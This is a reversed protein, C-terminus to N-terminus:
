LYIKTEVQQSKFLNDISKSNIQFVNTVAVRLWGLLGRERREEYCGALSCEGAEKLALYSWTVLNHGTLNLGFLQTNYFLKKLLFVHGKQREWRSRGAAQSVSMILSIGIPM